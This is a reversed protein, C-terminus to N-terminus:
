EGLIADREENPIPYIKDVGAELMERMLAQGRAESGPQNALRKGLLWLAVRHEPNADLLRAIMLSLSAEDKEKDLHYLYPAALDERRPALQAIRVASAPYFLFSDARSKGFRDDSAISTQLFFQITLDTTAAHLGLGPVNGMLFGAQLLKEVWREADEAVRNRLRYRKVRAAQPKKSLYEEVSMGAKAARKETERQASRDELRRQLAHNSVGINGLFEASIARLREGGRPVDELIMGMPYETYPAHLAKILWESYLMARAQQWSSWLMIFLLPIFLLSAWQMKTRDHFQPKDETNLLHVLAAWYLAQFAIFFALPFWFYSLLMMAVHVPVVRWFFADPIRRILLITFGYWLVLGPIGLALIAELPQSHAHAASGLMLASNDGLEGNEFLAVNETATYKFAEDQFRNWGHGTLMRGPEDMLASIGIANLHMRISLSSNADAFFVSSSLSLLPYLIPLICVVISTQRLWRPVPAHAKKRAVAWEIAFLVAIAACPFLLYAARNDTLALAIMIAVCLQVQGNFSRKPNALNLIVWTFGLLYPLYDSWGYPQWPYYPATDVFRIDLEPAVQLLYIAVLAAVLARVMARRYAEHPWLLIAQTTVLLICVYWGTGEGWEGTGFWSRWSSTAFLLTVAIQWGIWALILWYYVPLRRPVVIWQRFFGQWFWGCTLASILFIALVRPEQTEWYGMRFPSLGFVFVFAQLAFLAVGARKFWRPTSDVLQM